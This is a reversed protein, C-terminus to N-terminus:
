LNLKKQLPFMKEFISIGENSTIFFSPLNKSAAYFIQWCNGGIIFKGRTNTMFDVPDVVISHGFIRKIKQLDIDTMPRSEANGKTFVITESGIGILKEKNVQLSIDNEDCYREIPNRKLESKLEECRGFENRKAELEQIDFFWDNLKFFDIIEKKVAFKIEIEPYKVLFNEKVLNLQLIHEYISTNSYLCYKNKIKKLSNLPKAM